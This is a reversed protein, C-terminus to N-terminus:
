REVGLWEYTDIDPKEGSWGYELTRGEDDSASLPGTGEDIIEIVVKSNLLELGLATLHSSFTEFSGQRIHLKTPWVGYRSRFGDITQFVRVLYGGPELVIECYKHM